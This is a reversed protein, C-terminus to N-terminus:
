TKATGRLINKIIKCFSYFLKMEEQTVLLIIFPQKAYEDPIRSSTLESWCGGFRWFSSLHLLTESVLHSQFNPLCSTLTVCQRQNKRHISKNNHSLWFADAGHSHHSWKPPIEELNKGFKHWQLSFLLIHCILFILDLIKIIIVSPKFWKNTSTMLWYNLLKRIQLWKRQSSM